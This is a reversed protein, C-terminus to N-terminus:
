LYLLHLRYPLHNKWQTVHGHLGPPNTASLMFSIRGGAGRVILLSCEIRRQWFRRM